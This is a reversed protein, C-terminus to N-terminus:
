SVEQQCLVYEIIKNEMWHKKYVFHLDLQRKERLVGEDLNKM